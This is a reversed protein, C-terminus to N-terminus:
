LKKTNLAGSSGNAVSPWKEFTEPEGLFENPHHCFFLPSPISGAGRETVHAGPRVWVGKDALQSPPLWPRSGASIAPLPKRAGSTIETAELLAHPGSASFFKIVQKVAAQWRYKDINVSSLCQEFPRKVGRLM